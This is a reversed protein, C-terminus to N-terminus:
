IWKEIKSRANICDTGKIAISDNLINAGICIKKIDEVVNALGSGEHTTIIRITKGAFNLNKIATEIEPAYSGWYVPTMIYIVEYMSIDNIKNKIPANGVRQKAEEICKNYEKSYPILPEVKFLDAGVIDKVYEAIYETNGKSVYGVSYNEDARSFYIVLSKKNKYVSM